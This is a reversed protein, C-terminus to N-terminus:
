PTSSVVRLSLDIPTIAKTLSGVSIFDVGLTNYSSISQLTVGGSLELKAQKQNITVAQQLTAHDMNDLLLIDAGADLAQQLEDLTEVEVEIPIAPPSQTRAQAVAAKISGAAAIHNEKILIGDFLGIRHNTGGGCRVAYKQAQRLGPITKRTDLLTIGSGQLAAVYRQTTTATGSLTQLFNLATREAMLIAQAPGSLSCLRQGATVHTGDTVGWHITIQPNILLFAQNFWDCGCIIAEERCIVEATVRNEPPILHATLDGTGIDEDLALQVQQQIDALAIACAVKTM